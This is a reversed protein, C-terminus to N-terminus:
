NFMIFRISARHIIVITSNGSKSDCARSVPMISFPFVSVHLWGDEVIINIEM